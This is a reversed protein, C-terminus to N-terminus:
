ESGATNLIVSLAKHLLLAKIRVSLRAVTVIILLSQGFSLIAYLPSILAFPMVDKNM